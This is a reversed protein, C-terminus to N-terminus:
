DSGSVSTKSNKIINRKISGFPHNWKRELQHKSLEQIAQVRSSYSGNSSVNSVSTKTKKLRTSSNSESKALLLKTTSADDYKKSRIDNFYLHKLLNLASIRNDPHYSITRKLIDCGVTSLTPVYKFLNVPDKKKFDFESKVCHKFRELIHKSPNGLICHIKDLQDIETQGPFLPQLTLMEYFVCGLAWIDMKPGYYGHSLMCEPARYWRTSVYESHPLPYKVYTASGLDALQILESRKPNTKALESDIRLLCNEPKIDRHFIGNHHLFLLGHALQYLYNKCRTESLTRKRDKIYDYLSYDMLNFILTLRSLDAEYAYDNIWSVNKHSAVKFLAKLEAYDVVEDYSQFPRILRKAAFYEGTSVQKVKFVESFSGEGIKNEYTYKENSIGLM